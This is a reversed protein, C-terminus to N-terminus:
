MRLAQCCIKQTCCVECKKTSAIRFQLNTLWSLQLVIAPKGTTTTSVNLRDERALRWSQLIIDIYKEIIDFLVYDQFHEGWAGSPVYDPCDPPPAEDFCNDLNRSDPVWEPGKDRPSTKSIISLLRRYCVVVYRHQAKRTDPADQFAAFLKERCRTAHKLLSAFEDRKSGLSPVKCEALQLLRRFSWKRWDSHDFLLNFARTEKQKYCRYLSAIESM